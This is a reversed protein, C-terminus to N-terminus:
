RASAKKLQSQKRAHGDILLGNTIFEILFERGAETVAASDFDQDPVLSKYMSRVALYTHCSFLAVAYQILPNPEARMLGARQINAFVPTFEAVDQRDRENWIKSFTQWGEAMEWNYIRLVNPHEVLYDFYLGVFRRLLDRIRGTKMTLEMEQLESLAEDQWGRMDSDARRIVASYLGLKDGFYQFILSKNYGSEDAIADIRAGDFGHEAFVKEGADLIAERTGEADHMRGRRKSGPDDM